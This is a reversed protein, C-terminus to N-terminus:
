CRRRWRLRHAALRTSLADLFQVIADVQDPLAVDQGATGREVYAIEGAPTRVFSRDADWAQLQQADLRTPTATM